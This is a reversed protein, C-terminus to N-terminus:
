PRSGATGAAPNTEANVPLIGGGVPKLQGLDKRYQEYEQLTFQQVSGDALLCILLGDQTRARVLIRRPENDDYRTSFTVRMGDFAQVDNATLYGAGLLEELSVEPPLPRGHTTQDRSFAKLARILKPANQFAPQKREWYLSGALILVVVIALGAAAFVVLGRAKM